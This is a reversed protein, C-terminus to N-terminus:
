SVVVPGQILSSYDIVGQKYSTMEVESYMKIGKGTTIILFCFSFYGVIRPVVCVTYNQTKYVLSCEPTNNCKTLLLKMCNSGCM